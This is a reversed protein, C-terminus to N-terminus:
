NGGIVKGSLLFPDFKLQKFEEMKLYYHPVLNKCIKGEM